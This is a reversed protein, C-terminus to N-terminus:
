YKVWLAWNQQHHVTKHHAGTVSLYNQSIPYAFNVKDCQLFVRLHQFEVINNINININNTVMVDVHNAFGLVGARYGIYKSAINYEKM